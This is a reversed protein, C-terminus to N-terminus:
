NKICNKANAPIMIVNVIEISKKPFTNIDFFIGNNSFIIM